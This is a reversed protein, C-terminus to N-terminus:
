KRTLFRALRRFTPFADKNSPPRASSPKSKPRARKAVGRKLPEGERDKPRVEVITAVPPHENAHPRTAEQNADAPTAGEILAKLGGSQKLTEQFQNYLTNTQGQLQQNTEVVQLVRDTLQRIEAAHKRDSFHLHELVVARMTPDVTLPPQVGLPEQGVGEGVPSDARADEDIESAAIDTYSADNIRLAFDDRWWARRFFWRTRSGEEENKTLLEITVDRGPIEDGNAYVLKLNALIDDTRKDVAERVVRSVTRETRSIMKATQKKTCWEPHQSM